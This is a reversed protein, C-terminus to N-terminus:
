MLLLQTAMWLNNLDLCKLEEKIILPANGWYDVNIKGNIKATTFAVPRIQASVKPVTFM